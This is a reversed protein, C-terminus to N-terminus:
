RPRGDHVAHVPISLDICRCGYWGCGSFSFIDRPAKDNSGRQTDYAATPTPAIITTSKHRLRNVLAGTAQQVVHRSTSLRQHLRYVATSVRQSTSYDM